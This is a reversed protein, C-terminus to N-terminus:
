YDGPRPSLSMTFQALTSRSIADGLPADPLYKWAEATNFNPKAVDTHSHIVLFIGNWMDAFEERQVIRNGVAPDSLLVRQEDVAKIVVFHSYGAVNVLAIAAVDVAILKDLSIRFGDAKYGQSELYLKMDLLSFGKRRIKEQDGHEFMASFVAKESRNQEYYFTLLTAVAASGCSFDYAQKIVERFKLEQFSPVAVSVQGLGGPSFTVTGAAAVGSFILSVLAYLTNARGSKM